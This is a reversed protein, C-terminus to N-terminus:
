ADNAERAGLAREIIRGGLIPAALARPRDLVVPGAPSEPSTSM